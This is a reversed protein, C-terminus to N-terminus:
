VLGQMTTYEGICLYERIKPHGLTHKYQHMLAATDLNTGFSKNIFRDAYAQASETPLQRLSKLEDLAM